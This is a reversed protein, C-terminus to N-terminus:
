LAGVFAGVYGDKLDKKRHESRLCQISWRPVVAVDSLGSLSMETACTPLRAVIQKTRRGGVPSVQM